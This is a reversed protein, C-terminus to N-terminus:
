DSNGDAAEKVGLLDRAGSQELVDLARGISRWDAIPLKPAGDACIHRLVDDLIRRDKRRATRASVAALCGPGHEARYDKLRRLIARKEDAESQYPEEPAAKSVAGGNEPLPAVARKWQRKMDAGKQRHSREATIYDNLGPITMPLVLKKAATWDTTQRYVDLAATLADAVELHETVEAGVCLKARNVKRM